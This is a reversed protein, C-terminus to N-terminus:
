RLESSMVNIKVSIELFQDSNSSHTYIDPETCYSIKYNSNLKTLIVKM